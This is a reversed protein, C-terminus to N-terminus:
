IMAMDSRVLPIEEWRQDSRNLAFFLARILLYIFILILRYLLQRVTNSALHSLFIQVSAVVVTTLLLPYIRRSSRSPCSPVRNRSKKPVPLYISSSGLFLPSVVSSSNSFPPPPPVSSRSISSNTHQLIYPVTWVDQTGARNALLWFLDFLSSLYLLKSYVGTGKQIQNM